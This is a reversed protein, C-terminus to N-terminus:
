GGGLLLKSKILCFMLGYLATGRESFLRPYKKKGELHALLMDVM